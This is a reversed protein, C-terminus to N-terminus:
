VQNLLVSQWVTCRDFVSVDLKKMFGFKERNSQFCSAQQALDNALTNEDKSVHQVTFDDFLAIIELCKNLYANLLGDFCQLVGVIQQVVLLSDGFTEVSKVGM